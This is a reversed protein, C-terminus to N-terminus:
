ELKIGIIQKFLYIFLALHLTVNTIRASKHLSQPLVPYGAQLACWSAPFACHLMVASILGAEVLPFSGVGKWVLTMARSHAFVYILEWFYFISTM